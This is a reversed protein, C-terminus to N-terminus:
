KFYEANLRHKNPIHQQYNPPDESSTLCFCLMYFYFPNTIYFLNTNSIGAALFAMLLLQKNQEQKRGRVILVLIAIFLFAFGLRLVIFLFMNHPNITTGAAWPISVISSAVDGLFLNYWGLNAIQQNWIINRGNTAVLIISNAIENTISLYFISLLVIFFLVVLISFSRFVKLFIYSLFVVLFIMLPTAAGTMVITSLALFYVLWRSNKKNYFFNILFIFSSFSDISAPTGEIGHFFNMGAIESPTNRYFSSLLFYSAISIILYILYCTNACWVFEFDPYYKIYFIFLVIFVCIFLPFFSGINDTRTFFLMLGFFISLFLMLLTTIAIEQRVCLPIALLCLFVPILLYFFSDSGSIVKMLALMVYSVFLLIFVSKHDFTIESFM